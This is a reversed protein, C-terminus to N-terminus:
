ESFNTIIMM